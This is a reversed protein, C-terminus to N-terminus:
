SDCMYIDRYIRNEIGIGFGRSSIEALRNVLRGRTMLGYFVEPAVTKPGLRLREFFLGRSENAHQLRYLPLSERGTRDASFHIAARERLSLAPFLPAGLRTQVDLEPRLVAMFAFRLLLLTIIFRFAIGSDDPM